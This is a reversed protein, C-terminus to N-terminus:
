IGRALIESTLQIIDAAGNSKPEYETIGIHKGVSEAIAVNNRVKTMFVQSSLQEAMKEAVELVEKSLSTRADYKNFVLGSVKLNPNFEKTLTYTEIVGMNAELTAIDPLMPIILRDAVAMSLIHVRTPTPNVDIFIFDYENEISKIANIITQTKVSKDIQTLEVNGPIIDLNPKINTICDNINLGDILVDKMCPLENRNKVGAFYSLNARQGDFDIQLGKKGLSALYWGTNFCLSSKGIGGKENIWVTIM